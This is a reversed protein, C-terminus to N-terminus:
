FIIIVEKHKFISSLSIIEMNKNLISKSHQLISIIGAKDSEDLFWSHISLYVVPKCEMLFDLMQPVLLKESGEVDIKIFDCKTINFDSVFDSFTISKIKESERNKVNKYHKVIKSDDIYQDNLLLSSGSSGMRFKGAAYLNLVGRKDSIAGEFIEFQKNCKMNGKLFSLAVPDPEVGICREAINAAYLICPGIWTGMDIYVSDSSIFKSMANYITPEWNGNQNINWFKQYKMYCDDTIQFTIDNITINKM